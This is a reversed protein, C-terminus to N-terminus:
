SALKLVKWNLNRAEKTKDLNNLDASPKLVISKQLSVVHKQQAKKGMFFVSLSNQPVLKM